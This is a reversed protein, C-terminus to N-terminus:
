KFKLKIKEVKNKATKLESELLEILKQGQEYKGLAEDIDIDPNDFWAVIERLNALNNQFSKKSQQKPKAM